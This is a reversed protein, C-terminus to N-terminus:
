QQFFGRPAGHPFLKSFRRWEAEIKASERDILASRTIQKDYSVPGYFEPLADFLEDALRGLRIKEALEHEAQKAAAIEAASMLQARVLLESLALIHDWELPLTSVIVRNEAASYRVTKFKAVSEYRGFEPYAPGMARNFIGDDLCLNYFAPSGYAEPPMWKQLIWVPDKERTPYEVLWPGNPSPGIETMDPLWMLRFVPEGYHNYGGFDALWQSVETPCEPM